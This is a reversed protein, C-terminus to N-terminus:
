LQYRVLYAVELRESRSPWPPFDIRVTRVRLAASNTAPDRANACSVVGLWDVVEVCCCDVVCVADGLSLWLPFEIVPQRFPESPLKVSVSWLPVVYWNFPAVDSMFAWTPWWTWSLPVVPPASAIADEDALAVPWVCDDADDDFFKVTVLMFCMASVHLGEEEASPEPTEALGDLSLLACDLVGGAELLAVPAAAPLTALGVFELVADGSFGVLAVGSWLWVGLAPVAVDVFGLPEVLLEDDVEIESFGCDLVVCVVEVVVVVVSVFCLFLLFFLFSLEFGLSVVVVLGGLLLVVM